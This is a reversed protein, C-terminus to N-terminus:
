HTVQPKRATMDHTMVASCIVCLQTYLQPLWQSWLDCGTIIVYQLQSQPKLPQEHSTPSSSTSHTRYAIWRMRSMATCTLSEFVSYSKNKSNTKKHASIDHKCNVFNEM